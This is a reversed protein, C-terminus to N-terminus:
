YYHGGKRPGTGSSANSLFSPRPGGMGWKEVTVAGEQNLEGTARNPDGELGSGRMVDSILKSGMEEKPQQAGKAAKKGGMALAILLSKPLSAVSM